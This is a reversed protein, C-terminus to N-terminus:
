MSAGGHVRVGLNMSNLGISSACWPSESPPNLPNRGNSSAGGHAGVILTMPNHGVWVKDM